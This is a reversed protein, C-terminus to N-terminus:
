CYGNEVKRRNDTKELSSVNVDSFAKKFQSRIDAAFAEHNTMRSRDNSEDIAQNHALIKELTNQNWLDMEKVRAMVPEIGWEIPKGTVTWNDTLAFVFHPQLRSILLKGGEWDCVDFGVTERYVHIAGYEERKAYLKSDHAKLHKTLVREREGVM